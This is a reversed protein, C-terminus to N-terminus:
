YDNILATTKGSIVKGKNLINEPDFRRKLGIFLNKQNDNLYDVKSLGIGYEGPFSDICDVAHNLVSSIAKANSEKFYPHVIGSALHCSCPIMRSNLWELFEFLKKEPMKFDEKFVFGESPLVNDVSSVLAMIRDIDKQDRMLGYSKHDYLAIMYYKKEMGLMPAILNDIYRLSLLNPNSKEPIVQKIIDKLRFSSFLALSFESPKEALKLKAKTIIGTIGEKGIFNAMDEKKSYKHILNAGDVAEIEIVWNLASGYKASWIGSSDSSLIGGITAVAASSPTAPFFLNHKELAANLDKCIVGPEVIVYKEQINIELISNMKSLDIIVSKQPVCGGSLSSGGGRPVLDIKHMKAYLVIKRLQTTDVPLAVCIAEGKIQSADRTYPLLENERFLLNEEGVIRRIAEM